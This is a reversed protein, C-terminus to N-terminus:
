VPFSMSIGSSTTSFPEPRDRRSRMAAPDDPALHDLIEPEVVRPRPTSVNATPRRTM